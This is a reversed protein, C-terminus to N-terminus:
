CAHAPSPATGTRPITFGPPGWFGASGWAGPQTPFNTPSNYAPSSGSLTYDWGCLFSPDQNTPNTDNGAGGSGNHNLNGGGGYQFYTNNSSALVAPPSNNGVYGNGTGAANAVIINNTWTNGSMPGSIAQYFVLDQPNSGGWIADGLDCINGTYTLNVGGHLHSCAFKTGTIVNGAILENSSLDDAYFGSGGGGAGMDKLYNYLVQVGTTTTATGTYVAACDSAGTCTDIVANYSVVYGNFTGQAQFLSIGQYAVNHVHNHTILGDSSVGDVVVCYQTSHHIKSNRLIVRVSGGKIHVCEFTVHGIDLGDIVIDAGSTEILPGAFTDNGSFIATNVGDPPYYSWTTGADSSTLGLTSTFSPYSGARFYCTKKTASARMATQCKAPTAFPALLTGAASDSGTTAVYFATASVVPPASATSPILWALQVEQPVVAANAAAAPLLLAVAAIALLRAMM